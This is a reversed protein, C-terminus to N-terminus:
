LAQSSDGIELCGSGSITRIRTLSVPFSKWELLPIDFIPEYRLNVSIKVAKGWSISSVISENVYSDQQTPEM